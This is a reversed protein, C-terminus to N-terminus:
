SEFWPFPLLLLGAHGFVEAELAVKWSLYLASTKGDFYEPNRADMVLKFGKIQKVKDQDWSSEQSEHSRRQPTSRHSQHFEEEEHEQQGPPSTHQHPYSPAMIGPRTGPASRSDVINTVKNLMEVKFQSFMDGMMQSVQNLAVTGQSPAASPSHLQQASSLPRASISGSSTVM